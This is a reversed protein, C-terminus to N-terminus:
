ADEHGSHQMFCQVFLVKFIGLHKGCEALTEDSGDPCDNDGDCKWSLHICSGSSCMFERSGCANPSETGCHEVSEDAGGRCDYDGDCTWRDPICTNTDPCM